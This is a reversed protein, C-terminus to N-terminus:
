TIFGHPGPSLINESSNSQITQQQVIESPERHNLTMQDDFAPGYNYVHHQYIYRLNPYKKKESSFTFFCLM